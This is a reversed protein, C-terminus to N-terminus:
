PAPTDCDASSVTFSATSLPVLLSGALSFRQTFGACCWCKKAGQTCIRRVILDLQYTGTNLNTTSNMNFLCVPNVSPFSTWAGDNALVAKTACDLVRAGGGGGTGAIRTVRWRRQLSATFGPPCTALASSDTAQVSNSTSSTGVVLLGFAAASTCNTPLCRSSGQDAFAASSHVVNGGAVIAGAAALRSLAARRDM